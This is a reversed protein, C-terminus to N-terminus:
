APHLAGDDAFSYFEHGAIILHDLVTLDLYTAARALKQTLRRDAESPTTQGSPHNHALILSTAGAHSLARRFIQKADAVTATVGGTSIRDCGLLYGARNLILIHFEEHRLDGILPRLYRYAHESTTMVPKQTAFANERRRGLELAALLRMAKAQGVGPLAEFDILDKRALDHLDGAVTRLVQRALTLVSVGARGSGLLIAVLEADSLARAGHQRLKERPRDDRGMDRILIPRETTTYSTM